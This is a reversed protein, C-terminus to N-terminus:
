DPSVAMEPPAKEPVGFSMSLASCAPGEYPADACVQRTEQTWGVVPARTAHTWDNAIHRPPAPAAATRTSVFLQACTVASWASSQLQMGFSTAIEPPVNVPVGLLM